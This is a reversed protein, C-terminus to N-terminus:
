WTRKITSGVLKEMAKGVVDRDQPPPYETQVEAVPIAQKEWKVKTYGSSLCDEETIYNKQAELAMLNEYALPDELYDEMEIPVESSVMVYQIGFMKANISDLQNYM